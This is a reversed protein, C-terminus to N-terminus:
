RPAHESDGSSFPESVGSPSLEQQKGGRRLEHGVINSFRAEPSDSPSVYQTFLGRAVDGLRRYKDLKGGSKYALDYLKRDREFIRHSATLPHHYNTTIINEVHEKFKREGFNKFEQDRAQQKQTESQRHAAENRDESEEHAKQKVGLIKLKVARDLSSLAPDAQITAYAAAPDFARKVYPSPVHVHPNGTEAQFQNELREPHAPHLSRQRDSFEQKVKKTEKDLDRSSRKLREYNGIRSARAGAVMTDFPDDSGHYLRSLKKAGRHIVNLIGERLLLKRSFPTNETLTLKHQKPNYTM